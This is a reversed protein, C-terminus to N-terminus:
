RERGHPRPTGLTNMTELASVIAAAVDEMRRRQSRATARLNDLAAERTLRLREMLIGVATSIERGSELAHNLQEGTDKLSRIQAARALAAEISPIIQPVDLPKVLYGLAGLETARSITETDDYASLFLFPVQFREALEEALRVGSTGPMRVDLLALDPLAQTALELAAASDSAESVAYGADRLGRGLMALVLRDDDVILIRARGGTGSM